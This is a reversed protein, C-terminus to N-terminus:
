WHAHVLSVLGWQLAPTGDSRISLGAELPANVKGSGKAPMRLSSREGYGHALGQKLGSHPRYQTVKFTVPDQKKKKDHSHLNNGCLEKSEKKKKKKLRPELM